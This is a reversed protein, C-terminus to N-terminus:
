RFCTQTIPRKNIFSNGLSVPGPRYLSSNRRTERLRFPAFSAGHLETPKAGKLRQPLLKLPNDVNTRQLKANAERLAQKEFQAMELVLPLQDQSSGLRRMM